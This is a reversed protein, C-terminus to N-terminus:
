SSELLLSKSQKVTPVSRKDYFNVSLKRLTALARFLRIINNQPMFCLKVYSVLRLNLAYVLFKFRFELTLLNLNGFLLM